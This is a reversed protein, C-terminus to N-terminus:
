RIMCFLVAIRSSASHNSFPLFLLFQFPLSGTGGGGPVVVSSAALSALVEAAVVEIRLSAENVLKECGTSFDFDSSRLLLDSPSFDVFFSPFFLVALSPLPALVAELLDLPKPSGPQKLPKLCTKSEAVM